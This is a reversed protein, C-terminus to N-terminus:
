RVPYSLEAFKRSRLHSPKLQINLQTSEVAVNTSSKKTISALEIAIESSLFFDILDYANKHNLSKSSIVFSQVWLGPIQRDKDYDHHFNIQSKLNSVNELSDTENSNPVYADGISLNENKKAEHIGWLLPVSYAGEPDTPIDRFDPSVNSINKLYKVDIPAILANLKLEPVNTHPALILDFFSLNKIKKNFDENSTYYSMKIESNRELQYSELLDEPILGEPALLTIVHPSGHIINQPANLEYFNGFGLGVVFSLCIYWIIYKRM